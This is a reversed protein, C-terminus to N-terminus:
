QWWDPKQLSSSPITLCDHCEIHNVPPWVSFDYNCHPFDQLLFDDGLLGNRTYVRATDITSIEFYGLAPNGPDNVNEVNGYVRSLPKDFITGTPSILQSIKQWYEFADRTITHQYVSFCISSEFAFDIKRKGVKEFVPTGPQYISLDVLSINQDSIRNTIFCQHQVGFPDYIKPLENFIYVADADWRVYRGAVQDPATTYAYAYARPESSIAGNADNSVFFEGRVQVSDLPVPQPMKEPRSRYVEGNALRIEISYIRGPVGQINYLRYDLTKGDPAFTEQYGFQNGADDSLTIQAGGVSEFAQKNSDGPRTLRVIHPGSGETFAGSVVLVDQDTNSQFFDTERVCNALVLVIVLTYLLSILKNKM